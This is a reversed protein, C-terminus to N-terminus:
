KYNSLNIVSEKTHFTKETWQFIEESSDYVILYDFEKWKTKLIEQGDKSSDCFIIDKPLLLYKSMYGLYGQNSKELIVIYSARQPVAYECILEDYQIRLQPIIQKKYYSFRPILTCYFVLIWLPILLRYHIGKYNKENELISITVIGVVFILITRYYRNYGNLNVAEKLPMSFIYMGLLGFLYFIYTLLAILFIQLEVKSSKQIFVKHLFYLLVCFVFLYIIPNSLTFVNKLVELTIDKIDIISKRLFVTKFNQISMSHKAMMGTQYVLSVHKKWLLLFIFPSFIQVLLIKLADKGYDKSCILIYVITVIVFFIGSNKISILLTNFAIVWLGKKQLDNKYYICFSMTSLGTLPLLTDVLLDNFETNSCLLMISVIVALIISDIKKVFAFLCIVMGIMLIIQAYMQMWESTIGAIKVIYYIFSASGLPYSQFGINVTDLFNPFRNELLMVKLVTAWHSFSDYNVFKDNYLLVLFFIGMIGFFVTGVSILGIASERNRISVGGLILGILFITATVEPLINLIGALFMVSGIGSFIVAIVFELKIKKSIFQIYGYFSFLLALLRIITVIHKVSM